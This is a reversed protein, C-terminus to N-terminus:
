GVDNRDSRARELRHGALRRLAEGGLADFEAATFAVGEPLDRASQDPVRRGRAVVGGVLPRVRVERPLRSGLSAGRLRRVPRVLEAGGAAGDALLNLAVGGRNEVTQRDADKDSAVPARKVGVAREELEDAIAIEGFKLRRAPEGRHEAVAIRLAHRGLVRARHRDDPRVSLNERDIPVRLRDAPVPGWRRQDRQAARQLRLQPRPHAGGLALLRRAATERAVKLRHEVARSVARDREIRGAADQGQVLRRFAQEAIMLVLDGALAQQHQERRLAM